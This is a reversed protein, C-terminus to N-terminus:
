EKPFRLKIREIIETTSIGPSYPVIAIRSEPLDKCDQRKSDRERESSFGYAYVDYANKDMFDLTIERPGSTHVEDVYKCSSLVVAREEVTMIPRRKYIEVREDPVVQVVLKDGMARARRLFEVHGPHFLDGVM